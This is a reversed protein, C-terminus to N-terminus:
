LDKPAVAYLARYGMAPAPEFDDAHFVDGMLKKGEPAKALALFARALEDAQDSARPGVVVGDSPTEDTVALLDFADEFGPAALKLAERLHPGGEDLAHIPAVDAHESLVAGLAAPYSGAFFQHKFVRAPELANKRLFAAPLLYGAVSHPDVWAARKGALSGLPGGEGKRVVLASRYSSKGRRVARVLV